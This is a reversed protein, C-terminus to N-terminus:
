QTENIKFLAANRVRHLGDNALRERSTPDTRRHTAVAFRERWDISCTHRRRRLEPEPVEECSLAVVRLAVSTSRLARLVATQRALLLSEEPRAPNANAARVVNRDADSRLLEVTGLPTNPNGAVNRRVDRDGDASLRVLDDPATNPHAAVMERIEWNPDAALQSLHQASTTPHAAALRRVFAFELLPELDAPSVDTGNTLAGIILATSPTYDRRQSAIERVDANEDLALADLVDPQVVARSALNQRVLAHSDLCLRVVADDPTNPNAAVAARTDYDTDSSLVGLVEAAADPRKALAERVKWESSRTLVLQTSVELQECVVIVFGIWASMNLLREVLEPQVDAGSAILRFVRAAEEPAFPDRVGDELEDEEDDDSVPYEIPGDVTSFALALVEDSVDPRKALAIRVDDAFDTALRLALDGPLQRRQAIAVRVEASPDNTLTRIIDTTTRENAAVLRRVDSDTDEALIALEEPRPNRNVVIARLEASPDAALRCLTKRSTRPNKAVQRRVDPDSDAALLDLVSPACTPNTAMSHRIRWDTSGALRRQVSLSLDPYAAVILERGRELRDAIESPNLAVIREGSRLQAIENAETRVLDDRDGRLSHVLALPLLPNSVVAARVDRDDDTALKELQDVTLRSSKAAVQRVTWSGDSVLEEIVERSANPHDVLCRLGADSARVYLLQENTLASDNQKIRAVLDRATIKSDKFEDDVLVSHFAPNTEAARATREDDDLALDVLLKPPTACHAAVCRRLDTSSLDLLELAWGAPSAHALLDRAEDADVILEEMIVDDIPHGTMYTATPTSAVHDDASDVLASDEVRLYELMEPTTHACMLLAAHDNSNGFRAAWWRTGSALSKANLLRHRAREDIEALWNADELLWWELVPNAAVIEPHCLALSALVKRSANPNSAVAARIQADRHRALKRLREPATSPDLAERRLGTRRESDSKTISGLPSASQGDPNKAV